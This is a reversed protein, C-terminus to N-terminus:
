MPLEKNYAQNSFLSACLTQKHKLARVVYM